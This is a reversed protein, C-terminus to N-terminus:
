RGGFSMERLSPALYGILAVKHCGQFAVAVVSVLRGLQQLLELFHQGHVEGIAVAESFFEPDLNGCRIV